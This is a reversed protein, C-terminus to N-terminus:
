TKRSVVQELHVLSSFPCVVPVTLIAYDASVTIGKSNTLRVGGAESYEVTKVPWNLHVQTILAVVFDNTETLAGHSLFSAIAVRCLPVASPLPSLSRDVFISSPSLIFM